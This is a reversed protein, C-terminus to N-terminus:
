SGVKDLINSDPKLIRLRDEFWDYTKDEMIPSESNYYAEKAQVLLNECLEVMTTNRKRILLLHNENWMEIYEKHTKM